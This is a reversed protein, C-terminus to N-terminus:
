EGGSARANCTPYQNAIVSDTMVALVSIEVAPWFARKRLDSADSGRLNQLM